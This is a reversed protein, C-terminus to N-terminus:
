YSAIIDQYTNVPIWNKFKKVYVPFSCKILTHPISYEGNHLQYFKQSFIEKSLMYAGTGVWRNKDLERKERGILLNDDNFLVTELKEDRANRLFIGYSSNHGEIISELDPKDYLDDANVVMFKNRLLSQVSLLGGGTGLYKQEM